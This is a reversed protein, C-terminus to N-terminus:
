ERRESWLSDTDLILAMLCSNADFLALKKNNLNQSRTFALDDRSM